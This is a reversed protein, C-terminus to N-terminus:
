GPYSKSLAIKVASVQRLITAQYNSIDQKQGTYRRLLIFGAILGSLGGTVQPLEGVRWALQSALVEMMVAALMM